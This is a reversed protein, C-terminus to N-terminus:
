SLTEDMGAIKVNNRYVAESTVSGYEDYKTWKGDKKGNSYYGTAKLKGDPYYWVWKDSSIDNKFYGQSELQGDPYYYQWLGENKNNKIRGYILPKGNESFVNFDGEKIGKVVDYELVQANIIDHVKGTFPEGSHIACILGDKLMVNGSNPAKKGCSSLILASSVFIISLLVARCCLLAKTQM